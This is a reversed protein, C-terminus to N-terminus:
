DGRVEVPKRGLSKKVALALTRSEPNSGRLEYVLVSGGVTGIFVRAGGAEVAVCSVVADATATGALRVATRPPASAERASM